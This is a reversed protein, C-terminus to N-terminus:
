HLPAPVGQLQPHAQQRQRHSHPQHAQQQAQMRQQQHSHQQLGALSPTVQQLISSQLTHQMVFNTGTGTATSPVSGLM